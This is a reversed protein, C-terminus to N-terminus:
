GTVSVTRFEFGQWPYADPFDVDNWKLDLPHATEAFTMALNYLVRADAPLKSITYQDLYILVSDIRILMAEYFPKLQELTVAHLKQYRSAENTLAWDSVWIELDLFDPPLQKNSM